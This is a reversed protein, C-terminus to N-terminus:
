AAFKKQFYAFSTLFTNRYQQFMKQARLYRIRNQQTQSNFFGDFTKPM